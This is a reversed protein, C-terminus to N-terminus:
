KICYAEYRSQYCQGPVCWKAACDSQPQVNGRAKCTAICSSASNTKAGAATAAAASIPGTSQAWATTVAITGALTVMLLASKRIKM